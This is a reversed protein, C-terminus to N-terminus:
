AIPEPWLCTFEPCERIFKKAAKLTKFTDALALPVLYNKGIALYRDATTARYNRLVFM